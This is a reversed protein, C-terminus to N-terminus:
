RPCIYGKQGVSAFPQDTPTVPPAEPSGLADGQRDVLLPDSRRNIECLRCTRNRACFLHNTLNVGARIVKKKGCNRRCNGSLRGEQCGQLVSVVRMCDSLDRSQWFWPVIEGTTGVSDIVKADAGRTLEHGAAMTKAELVTDFIERNVLDDRLRRWQIIRHLWEGM